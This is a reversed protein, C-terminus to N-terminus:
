WFYLQRRKIPSALSGKKVRFRLGARPLSGARQRARPPRLTPWVGTGQARKEWKVCIGALGVRQPTAIPFVAVCGRGTRAM